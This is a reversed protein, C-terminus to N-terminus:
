RAREMTVRIERLEGSGDLKLPANLLDASGYEISKVSIGEPLKGMSIRYEGEVLPFRFGGDPRIVTALITGKAPVAHIMLAISQLPLKQGDQLVAVGTLEVFGPIVVGAIERNQVVLTGQAGPSGPVTRLTYTGAPISPLEFRGDSSVGVELQAWASDGTFVVKQNPPRPSQPGLGVIGSVKVGVGPPIGVDIDKDRVVLPLNPLGNAPTAMLTYNGPPVRLFEFSGDPKIQATNAQLGRSGGTLRVLSPRMTGLPVRGSVRVGSAVALTFDLRDLAAGATIQISRAGTTTAVGPYYTPFDVLGAQIYYRGPPIAELKYRGESDTQTLSVLAGEGIGTTSDTLALAAVRVGSAPAGSTSRVIGTATGTQSPALPIQVVLLVAIFLARIM